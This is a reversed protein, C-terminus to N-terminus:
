HPTVQCCLRLVLHRGRLTLQTSHIQVPIAAGDARIMACEGPRNSNETARDMSLFIAQNRGIIQERRCDLMEGARRNVDLVRGSESDMLFAADGLSEFLTRYTHEAHRITEEARRLETLRATERLARDAAPILRMLRHKLVYDAAGNKTVEIATDEGITGSVFIFPIEPRLSRALALAERGNFDPLSFDSLILDFADHTLAAAFDERTEVRTFKCDPWRASIMAENLEADLANDELNLVRLSAPSSGSEKPATKKEANNKPEVETLTTTKTESTNEIVLTKQM